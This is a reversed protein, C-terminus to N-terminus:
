PKWRPAGATAKGAFNADLFTFIGNAPDTWLASSVGAYATLSSKIPFTTGDNFDSTYYSGTYTMTMTGPRIGNSVPSSQGFICDSITVPGTSSNGTGFDIFYRGTTADMTTRDFTCNDVVVGLCGAGAGYNIIGGRINYVTTNSFKIHIFNGTLAGNLVGYHSDFAFDYM